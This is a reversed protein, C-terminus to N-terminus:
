GAANGADKAENPTDSILKKPDIVATQFLMLYQKDNDQLTVTSGDFKSIANGDAVLKQIDVTAFLQALRDAEIGFLSLVGPRVLDAFSVKLPANHAYLM